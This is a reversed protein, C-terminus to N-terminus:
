QCKVRFQVVTVMENPYITRLTLSYTGEQAPAQVTLTLRAPDDWAQVRTLEPPFKTGADTVWQYRLKELPGSTAIEGNFRFELPAAPQGCTIVQTQSGEPTIKVTTVSAAEAETVPINDLDGAQTTKQRDVWCFVPKLRQDFFRLYWWQGTEDKGAIEAAKFVESPEYEM